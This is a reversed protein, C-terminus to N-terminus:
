VTRVIAAPWCEIATYRAEGRLFVERLYSYMSGAAITRNPAIITKGRGNRCGDRAAADSQTAM